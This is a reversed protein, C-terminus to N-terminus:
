NLPPFLIEPEGVIRDFSLSGFKIAQQYNEKSVENKEGIQNYIKQATQPM